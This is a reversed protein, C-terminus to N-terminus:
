KTETEAHQIRTLLAAALQTLAAPEDRATPDGALVRDALIEASPMDFTLIVKEDNTKRDRSVIAWRDGDRRVLRETGPNNGIVSYVDSPLDGPDAASGDYSITIGFRGAIRIMVDASRCWHEQDCTSWAFRSDGVRAERMM